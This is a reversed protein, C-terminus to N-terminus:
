VVTLHYTVDTSFVPPQDPPQYVRRLLCRVDWRGTL